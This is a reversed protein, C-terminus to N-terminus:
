FRPCDRSDEIVIHISRNLFHPQNVLETSPIKYRNKELDEAKCWPKIVMYGNGDFPDRPDAGDCGDNMENLIERMYLNRDMFSGTGELESRVLHVAEGLRLNALHCNRRESDSEGARRKQKCLNAHEGFFEIDGEHTETSAFGRISFKPRNAGCERIAGSFARLWERQYEDLNWVGRQFGALSYITQVKSRDIVITRTAVDRFSPLRTKSILEQIEEALKKWDVDDFADGDIEGIRRLVTEVGDAVATANDETVEAGVKGVFEVVNKRSQEVATKMLGVGDAVATANDKTVEAGVKGVFEVVDRRSEDVAAVTSEKVEAGVEGVFEVVDRRSEDVVAVTSEKVEAGVKGVFEVVDRRSEDVVAVTSEKVEAGVEGVSEVVDRRSEDVVAVTSEKM